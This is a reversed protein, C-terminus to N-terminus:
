QGLMWSFSREGIGGVGRIKLTISKPMPKRPDFKLVGQRHLGGPGDGKWATPGVENGDTGLIVAVQEMDEGLGGNQADMTV